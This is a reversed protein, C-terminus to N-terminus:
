TARSSRREPLGTVTATLLASPRSVSMALASKWERASPSGTATEALKVLVPLSQVAQSGSTASTQFVYKFGRETIMDSYSLTLVPLNARQVADWIYGAQENDTGPGDPAAVNGTGPLINPDSPTAPDATIRDALSEIGVNINRNDGEYEYDTGRGGGKPEPSSGYNLPVSKTGFDSERGLCEAAWGTAARLAQM